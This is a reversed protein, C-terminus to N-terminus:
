GRKAIRGAPRAAEVVDIVDASMRQRGSVDSVDVADPAAGGTDGCGKKDPLWQLRDERDGAVAGPESM